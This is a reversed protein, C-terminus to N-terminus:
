LTGMVRLANDPVKRRGLGQHQMPTTATAADSYESSGYANRAAVQFHYVVGPKLDPLECWTEPGTHALEYM